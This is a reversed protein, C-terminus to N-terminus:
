FAEEFEIASIDFFEGPLQAFKARDAYRMRVFPRRAEVTAGTDAATRLPEAWTVAAQGNSDVDIDSLLTVMQAGANGALQITMLDGARALAISSTSSALTASRAGPLIGAFLTLAPNASVQPFGKAALKTWAGAQRMRADFARFARAGAVPEKVRVPVNALWRGAPGLEVERTGGTWPSVQRLLNVPPTWNIRGILLEAPWSVEAMM